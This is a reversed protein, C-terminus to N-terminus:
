RIDTAGAAARAFCPLDLPEFRGTPQRSRDRLLSIRDITRRFEDMAPSTLPEYKERVLAQLVPYHKFADYPDAENEIVIVPPLTGARLRAAMEADHSQRIGLRWNPNDLLPHETYYSLPFWQAADWIHEGPDLCRYFYRVIMREDNAGEPAYNEIIPVRSHREITELARGTAGGEEMVYQALRARPEVVILILATVLAVWGVAVVRAMPRQALSVLWVGLPIWLTAVDTNLGINRMLGLAALCGLTSLVVYRHDRRWIAMALAAVVTVWALQWMIWMAHEREFVSGTPIGFGPRPDGIGALRAFEVRDMFYTWVGEHVQVWTLWPALLVLVGLVYPVLSRRSLVVALALPLGVYAGHDHRLLVATATVACLEWPRGPQELYRCAVLAALPYIMAKEAGYLGGRFTLLAIPLLVLLALLRHRTIRFAVFYLSVLGITRMAVTVVIEGIPRHGTAAQGLYSLLVQLPFGGDHFDRNPLDGFRISTATWIVAHDDGQLRHDLSSLTVLVFLYFFWVVCARAALLSWDVKKM